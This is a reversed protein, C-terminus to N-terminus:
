IVTVRKQRAAGLMKKPFKLLDLTSRFKDGSGGSKSVHCRQKVREVPKGNLLSDLVFERQQM